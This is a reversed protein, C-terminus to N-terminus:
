RLKLTIPPCTISLRASTDAQEIKAVKGVYQILGTFM